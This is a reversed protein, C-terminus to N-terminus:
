RPDLDTRGADRRPLEGDVGAADLSEAMACPPQLAFDVWEFDDAV